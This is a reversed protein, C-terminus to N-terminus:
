QGGNGDSSNGRSTLKKERIIEVAEQLIENEMTKRGLARELEKIRAKLQKVESEAVVRENRKLSKKSAADTVRKWHFLLSPALGYKRARESISSGPQAAADLLAHKQDPTFRRRRGPGPAEEIVINSM